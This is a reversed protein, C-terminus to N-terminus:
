DHNKIYFVAEDRLKLYTEDNQIYHRFAEIGDRYYSELKLPACHEFDCEGNFGERSCMFGLMFADEIKKDEIM